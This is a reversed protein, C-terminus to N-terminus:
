ILAAIKKLLSYPTVVEVRKAYAFDYDVPAVIFTVDPNIEELAKWNGKELKPAVSAKSEIAIRKSETELIFDIEHGHNSRYFSFAANPFHAKLNQYIMGEWLSGFVPHGFLM